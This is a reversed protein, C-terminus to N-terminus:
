ALELLAVGNPPITLSIEKGSGLVLPEPRALESRRKLEEIQRITPYPPSGMERYAGRFDGSSQDVRTVHGKLRKREGEFKLLIHKAHGEDSDEVATQLMPDGMSSHKHGPTQAILNWALVALSGDQRRTALVSDDDCALRTAGLKHLLTFTHFSLRPVGRMGLLGFSSNMFRKPVGLEEFVNDFTWFSMMDVLGISGKITHAIFAPNQSSWETIYIPTEPFRSAKVENKVKALARPIM